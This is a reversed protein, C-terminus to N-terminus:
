FVFGFRLPFRSFLLSIAAPTTERVSTIFDLVSLIHRMIVHFLITKLIFGSHHQEGASVSGKNKKKNKKVQLLLNEVQANPAGRADEHKSLRSELRPAETNGTCPQLSPKQAEAQIHLHQQSHKARPSMHGARTSRATVLCHRSADSKIKGGRHRGRLFSRARRAAQRKGGSKYM